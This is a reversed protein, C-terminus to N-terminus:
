EAGGGHLRVPQVDPGDGGGRGRRGRGTSQDPRPHQLGLKFGLILYLATLFDNLKTATYGYLSFM